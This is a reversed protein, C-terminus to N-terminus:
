CTYQVISMMAVHVNTRRRFASMLGAATMEDDLIGFVHEIVKEAVARKGSNLDMIFNGEDSWKSPYINLAAQKIDDRM